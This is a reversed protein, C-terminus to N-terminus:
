SVKHFKNIPYVKQTDITMERRHWFRTVFLKYIAITLNEGTLNECWRNHSNQTSWKKIAGHYPVKLAIFSGLKPGLHIDQSKLLAPFM